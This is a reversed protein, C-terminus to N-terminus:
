PRPWPLRNTEVQEGGAFIRVYQRDGDYYGYWCWRTMPWASLNTRGSWATDAWVADGHAENICQVRYSGSPFNIDVRLYFCVPNASPCNVGPGGVASGGVSLRASRPVSVVTSTESSCGHQNCAKVRLTYNGFAVGAGASSWTHSASTSSPGGPLGGDDIEWRTIPSGNHAASWDAAVRIAGDSVKHVNVNITPRGPVRAPATVQASASLGWPGCGHLNCARVSVAYWGEAVNTWTYSTATPSPGGPLPGDNVEWRTISSGNELASWSGTLQNVGGRLSVTARGPPGVVTVSLSRAGGCGAANCAQVTITHRGAPVDTWTHSTATSSPGGPLGGGDVVWGTIPSGNDCASWSATIRNASGTGAVTPVCPPQGPATVDAVAQGSSGCGAANCAQVTITHRGAPVNTWTHSTATSSPSGPLGGDDVVWYGGPGGSDPASWSAMIRGMGGAATVTARGPPLSVTVRTQGWQGCGSSNCARARITYAGARVATWTYSTATPSPAGALGAAEVEWWTVLGSASWNAAIQSGQASARVTAAGPATESETVVVIAEGWGGCSGSACARVAVTRWGAPVSTLTTGTAAAAFSQQRSLWDGRLQWQDITTGNAPVSWVLTIENDGGTASVSAAGPRPGQVSLYEIAALPRIHGHGFRSPDEGPRLEASQEIADKIDDATADPFRAKLHAAVASVMPAAMSTGSYVAMGSPVTSLIDKGPAAVVDNGYNSFDALSGPPGTAAVSMVTDYGAPYYGAADESDNGAAAVAVIGLRHGVELAMRVAEWPFWGGFSMSIIDARLNVSYAIAGTAYGIGDPISTDSPNGGLSVKIPVIRAQPAMGAGDLSNDAVAAIIGAVHTGHGNTDTRGDDNGQGPSRGKGPLVNAALDRHSGDVGTDLVAVRVEADEPWGDWLARADLEALFWQERSRPDSSQVAYSVEVTAPRDVSLVTPDSASQQAFEDLTRGNLREYAVILCGDVIRLVEVDDPSGAPTGQPPCDLVGDANLRLTDSRHQQILEVAADIKALEPATLPEPSGSSGPRGVLDLALDLARALFTAMQAKTVSQDPCYRLPGTGCGATIGSAFLSDVNAAHANTGVDVFGASVAPDLDFTRVLFSAMQARTVNEHPCYRRPHTACGMTIGAEAFVEVHRSWWLHADVDAFRSGRASELGPLQRARAVWVAMTWRKLPERPCLREPDCGTGTLVGLDALAQVARQHMGAEGIDTFVPGNPAAASSAPSLLAPGLALAAVLLLGAGTRGVLQWKVSWRM